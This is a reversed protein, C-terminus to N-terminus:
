LSSWNTHRNRKASRCTLHTATRLATIAEAWLEQARYALGMNYYTEGVRDTM